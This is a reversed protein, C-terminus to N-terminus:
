RIAETFATRKVALTIKIVYVDLVTCKIQQPSTKGPMYM